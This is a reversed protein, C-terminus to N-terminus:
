KLIQLVKQANQRSRSHRSEDVTKQAMEELRSLDSRYAEAERMYSVARRQDTVGARKMYGEVLRQTTRLISFGDGECCVTGGIEVDPGLPNGLLAARCDKLKVRARPGSSDVLAALQELTGADEVGAAADALAKPSSIEGAVREVDEGESVFILRQEFDEAPRYVVERIMEVPNSFSFENGERVFDVRLYTDVVPSRWYDWVNIFVSEGDTDRVSYSLDTLGPTAALYTGVADDLRMMFTKITEGDNLEITAETLFSKLAEAIQTNKM